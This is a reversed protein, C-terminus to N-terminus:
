KEREEELRSIILKILGTIEDAPPIRWGDYYDAIPRARSDKDHSDWLIFTDTRSGNIGTESQEPLVRAIFDYDSGVTGQLWHNQDLWEVRIKSRIFRSNQMHRRIIVAQKKRELAQPIGTAL